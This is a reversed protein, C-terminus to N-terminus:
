LSQKNLHFTQESILKVAIGRALDAPWKLLDLKM